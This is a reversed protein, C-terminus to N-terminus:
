TACFKPYTSQTKIRTILIRSMRKQVSHTFKRIKAISIKWTDLHLPSRDGNEQDKQATKERLSTTTMWCCHGYVSDANWQICEHHTCPCCVLQDWSKHRASHFLHLINVFFHNRCTQDMDSSLYRWPKIIEFHKLWKDYDECLKVVNNSWLM